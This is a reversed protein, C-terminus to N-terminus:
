KQSYQNTILFSHQHVFYQTFTYIKDMSKVCKRKGFIKISM